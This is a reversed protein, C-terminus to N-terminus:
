NLPLRSRSSPNSIAIRQRNSKSEGSESGLVLRVEYAGSQVVAFLRRSPWNSSIVRDWLVHQADIRFDISDGKNKFKLQLSLPKIAEAEGRAGISRKDLRLPSDNLVDVPAWYEDQEAMPPYPPYPSLYLTPEVAIDLPGDSLNEITGTIVAPIAPNWNRSESRITCRMNPNVAKKELVRTQVSLGAAHSVLLLAFVAHVYFGLRSVSIQVM